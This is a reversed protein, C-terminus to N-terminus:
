LGALPNDCGSPVEVKQLVVVTLNVEATLRFALNPPPSPAVQGDIFAKFAGSGTGLVIANRLQDNLFTVGNPNLGPSQEQDVVANLNVNVLQALSTAAAPNSLNEPGVRLAGSLLTNPGSTNQTIKYVVSEIRIDIITEDDLGADAIAKEVDAAFNVTEVDSYVANTSNIQFPIDTAVPVTVEVTKECDESMFPFILALPFLGTRIFKRM